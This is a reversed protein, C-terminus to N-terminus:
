SWACYFDDLKSAFADVQFNDFIVRSANTVIDTRLNRNEILELMANALGDADKFNFFLVNKHDEMFEPLCGVPTSIVPIGYAMSELVTMPLGEKLSTMCYAYAEKFYCEKKKGEVWGPMDVNNEVGYEKIFHLVDSENGVGCMVLRWEPYKKVVKAFGKLLTDYGKNLDFWAAFLFYKKWEKQEMPVPSPNYLYDVKGKWGQPVPVYDCWSKGLTLVLESHKICFGLVKSDQFDKLQNGVHLHLVKKKGLLVSYLFIPLQVVMGSGPTTMFHVINYRPMVFLSLLFGRLLYLVKVIMNSNIQCEIWRCSYKKWLYSKEMTKVVTSVGGKMKRSDGVILVKINKM